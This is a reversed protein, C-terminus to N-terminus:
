RENDSIIAVCCQQKATEAVRENELFATIKHIKMKDIESDPSM